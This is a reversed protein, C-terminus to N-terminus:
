KALAVAVAIQVEAGVPLGNRSTTLVIDLARVTIKHPSRIQQNITVTGLGLVNITTNPVVNLSIPRGAVVLNLVKCTGIITGNSKATASTAIAESKILGGFLNVGAINSTTITTAAATTNTGFGTDTVAGVTLGPAITVSALSKTITVGNTGSSGVIVQATAASHVGSLTGANSVVKTAYARGANLHGTSLKTSTGAVAASGGFVAAGFLAATMGIGGVVRRPVAIGSAKRIRRTRQRALAGMAVGVM